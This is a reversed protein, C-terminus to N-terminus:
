DKAVPCVLSSWDTDKWDSCVDQPCAGHGNQDRLDQKNLAHCRIYLSTISVNSTLPGVVSYSWRLWSGGPINVILCVVGAM